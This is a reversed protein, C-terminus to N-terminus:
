VQCDPVISDKKTWLLKNDNNNANEDNDCILNYYMVSM